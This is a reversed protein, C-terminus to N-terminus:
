EGEKQRVASKDHLVLSAEILREILGRKKLRSDNRLEAALLLSEQAYKIGWRPDEYGNPDELNDLRDLVKIVKAVLWAEGIHQRDIMKRYARPTKNDKTRSPNTLMMVLACIYGGFEDFLQDQTAKTDEIVDHLYAVSLAAMDGPLYGKVAEAVRKPHEIYPEGGDRKQGAHAEEAFRLAKKAREDMVKEKRSVPQLTCPIPGMNPYPVCRVTLVQGVPRPFEAASGQHQGTTDM